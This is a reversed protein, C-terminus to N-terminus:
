KGVADWWFQWNKWKKGMQLTCHCDGWSRRVEQRTTKRLKYLTMGGSLCRIRGAGMVGEQVLSLLIDVEAVVILVRSGFAGTGEVFICLVCTDQESPGPKGCLGLM